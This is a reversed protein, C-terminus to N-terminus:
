LSEVFKKIRALGTKINDESTAYSIRVYGEGAEGFGSGPVVAVGTSKLLRIAFDESKMKTKSINVFCYFAGKPKVCSLGEIGNIGEIVLKRREAYKLVMRRLSEQPGELAEVAAYQAQTNVCSVVNEQLKTMNGIMRAPGVAYGIRWGTMAYSKSFSDIVITRDRMGEFTSISTFVSGDYLFNQYVEDSIILVDSDVAIRAIERLIESDAVGGTPNAPSNLIILKTRKTIAKKLADPAFVFGDEERVRVFKPAGGCMQVQRPYNPWHPDSIIVEDGPDVLVMMSLDLAEMGGATVLVEAGPDIDLSYERKFRNAIAKRLPLIGANPTYHTEGRQLSRVAEDVINQPTMFDPEGVAFSIVDEMTAAINFMKRIPSATVENAIRSIGVMGKGKHAL